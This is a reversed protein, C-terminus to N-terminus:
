FGHEWHPVSFVRDTLRSEPFDPGIDDLSLGTLELQEEVTIIKRHTVEIPRFGISTVGGDERELNMYGKMKGHGCCAVLVGKMRGLCPDVGMERCDLGGPAVEVCELNCEECVDGLEM